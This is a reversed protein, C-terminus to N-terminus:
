LGDLFSDFLSDQLSLMERAARKSKEHDYGLLHLFGHIYLYALEKKLGLKHTKAQARLVSLCFVLEGASDLEVPAFSLVDTAYNKQRFRKNLERGRKEDVFVVVISKNVLRRNKVKKLLRPRLWEDLSSLFKRPVPSPSLNIIELPFKV